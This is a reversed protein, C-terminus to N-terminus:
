DEDTESYAQARTRGGRVTERVAFVIVAVCVLVAMGLGINAATLWFASNDEM